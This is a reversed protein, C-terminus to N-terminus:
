MKKLIQRFEDKSVIGDALKTKIQADPTYCSLHKSIDHKDYSTIMIELTKAVATEAGTSPQNVYSIPEPPRSACSTYFHSFAIVSILLTTKKMWM